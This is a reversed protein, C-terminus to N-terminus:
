SFTDKARIQPRLFPDKESKEFMYASIGMKGHM